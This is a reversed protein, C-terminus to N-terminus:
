RRAESSPQCRIVEPKQQGSRRASLNLAAEIEASSSPQQGMIQQQARGLNTRRNDPPAATSIREVTM